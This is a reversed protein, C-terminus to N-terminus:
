QDCDAKAGNRSSVKSSVSVWGASALPAKLLMPLRVWQQWLTSPMVTHLDKFAAPMFRFRFPDSLAHEAATVYNGNLLSRGQIWRGLRGGIARGVRAPIWHSFEKGAASTARVLGAGLGELAFGASALAGGSQAGAWAVDLGSACGVDHLGTVRGYNETRGFTLYRDVADSLGGMGQMYWTEGYFGWPDALLVPNNGAYAYWNVGDGLPDETVFRGLEPWYYRAGLQLLGSGPTDTIYGWAAGFRYPNPTTGSSAILRGFTDLVYNDTIAGNGRLLLRATGVNDYAPYRRLTWDGGTFFHLLPSFYSGSATTYRAQTAGADSTDELVREGNYVYRHIAGGLVGRMRQGLANYLFTDVGGPYTVSTLRSEDDYVLSWSGLPGTVGTMNGNYDYGFSSGDSASTLKNNNDYTYTVLTGNYNRSARNGVADYTYYLSYPNPTRSEQLQRSLADYRLTTTRVSGDINEVRKLPNGVFDWLSGDNYYYNADYCTVGGSTRNLVATLWDRANYQYQIYSGPRTLLTLRGGNDYTFGGQTTGMEDNVYQLQNRDTYGTLSKV